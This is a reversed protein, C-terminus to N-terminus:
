LIQCLLLNVRGVERVALLPWTLHLFDTRGFISILIQVTLGSIPFFFVRWADIESINTVLQLSSKFSLLLVLLETLFITLLDLCFRELLCVFLWYAHSFM